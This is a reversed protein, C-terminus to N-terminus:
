NYILLKYPKEPHCSGGLAATQPFFEPSRTIGEAFVFCRQSTLTPLEPNKNGHCCGRYHLSTHLSLQATVRTMTQKDYNRVSREAKTARIIPNKNKCSELFQLGKPFLVEWDTNLSKNQFHWLAIIRQAM